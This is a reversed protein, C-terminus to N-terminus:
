STTSTYKWIHGQEVFYRNPTGDQNCISRRFRASKSFKWLCHNLRLSGPCIPRFDTDRDYSSPHPSFCCVLDFDICDGQINTVMNEPLDANINHLVDTVGVISIFCVAQCCLAAPRQEISGDPLNM